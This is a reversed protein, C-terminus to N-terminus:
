LKIWKKDAKFETRVTAEELPREIKKAYSRVFLFLLIFILVFGIARLWIGSFMPLGALKQAVGVTFPNCVGAAFGCGAALLSMGMGTLPDWGLSVALAVVLPVLPVCEEFSGIFSGMAMFFLIIVPLLSYRAKGFKQVIRDLMYKMLGCKELGNFAGGIILLFAIVAILTGNGAAGLVLVPSLLWKWFPIGGKVETFGTATDIIVNGNVDTIRAYEGGPIVLTLGYTLVMLVFLVAIATIFSKVSIDLGKKTKQNEM